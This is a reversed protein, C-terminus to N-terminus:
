TERRTTLRALSPFCPFGPYCQGPGSHKEAPFLADGANPWTMRQRERDAAGEVVPKAVILAARGGGSGVLPWVMVAGPLSFRAGHGSRCPEQETLAGTPGQALRRGGMGTGHGPIGGAGLYTGWLVVLPTVSSRVSALRRSRRGSRTRPSGPRDIPERHPPGIQLFSSPRRGERPGRPSPCVAAGPRRGAASGEPRVPATGWCQGSLTAVAGGSKEHGAPVGADKRWAASRQAARLFPM